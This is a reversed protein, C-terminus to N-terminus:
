FRMTLRTRLKRMPNIALPQGFQPTGVATGIASYTVSNLVNTAEVRWDFTLRSALTFTRTIGADLRWQAPGRVSNRGATGWSGVSPPAYAAPNLFFGAPVDHVDGVVSARVSGIVGTGPVQTLYVPTIPLGSGADLTSTLTWGRFLRGHWGTLLGGGGAGVGTTYQLDLTVKHRQDFTSPGWEAGPDRWDQAISAADATAAAFATADDESKALVYQASWTLGNRLRRRVQVQAANRLQSGNSMLYIFGAPCAPCPNIAGPAYTNPLIEQMLHSGKTGLYSATLTLSGPLDHQVWAQWNHAYGVRFHPDIAFTNFAQASPVGDFGTALSLPTAASSEVSFTRSLPPQQALQTALAQYVNTNRYIWYGARVVLSSGLLPRWALATRPQIGRRDPYLLSSPYGRPDSALVPAATAFDGTLALNVLRDHRETIPSEYEWRVGLNITLSPTLRLDDTVYLAVATSRFSKDPNGSALSATQPLGLLFDAFDSGSFAGTFGFSGRPDQQSQIEISTPRAEGGAVITHQSKAWTIEAGITHARNRLSSYTEDRLGEIGNRFVLAPPGWNVASQDNGLIDADGSVNARSSFYPLEQNSTQTFQYRPRLWLFSTLRRTWTARADVTSAESSDNFGFISTSDRVTRQWAVTGVLQNQQDIPALIRSQLSDQKSVSLVSRQYNRDSGTLNPEPYYGLLAQAQPSLRDSPITNNPFPQGTVPDIIQLPRGSLDRSQSFDGARELPTPMVTAESTADSDNTHQFGIFVMPRQQAGWPLKLPGGFTGVLHVDGYHEGPVSGGAVSRPRADFVSNGALLGASGNYLAGPRRRNNGFAAPQTFPSAAANNVSGNIVMSDDAQAAETPPADAAPNAPATSPSGPAAASTSAPASTPAAPNTSAPPSAPTTPTSVPTSAATSAPTGAPAPMTARQTLSAIADFPLLELDWIRPTAPGGVAVDQTIPVFGFMEIHLVYQGDPLDAFRYAGDPDTVTVRKVEGQTATITVGPVGQGNFRVQGVLEAAAAVAVAGLVLVAALAVIRTLRTLPM